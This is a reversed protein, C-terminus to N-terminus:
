AVQRLISQQPVAGPVNGLRQATASLTEVRVLGRKVLKAVQEAVTVVLRAGGDQQKALAPADLVVHFLAADEAARTLQREMAWQAFLRPLQQPLRLSQPIEWVGYHLAKPSNAKRRRQRVETGSVAVLGQKVVLDINSGVSDVRPVLARVNIGVSRSKIVRRELERAFRTRGASPGIWAADGLVAMEHFASSGTILSTAASFAPDSVAWTAPLRHSNFANVLTKTSDRLQSHQAIRCDEAIPDLEVTFVFQGVRHQQWTRRYLSSM